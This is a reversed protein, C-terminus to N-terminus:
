LLKIPPVYGDLEPPETSEPEPAKVPRPHTPVQRTQANGPADRPNEPGDLEEVNEAEQEPEDESVLGPPPGINEIIWKTVCNSMTLGHAECHARLHRYMTGTISISKRTQKRAM